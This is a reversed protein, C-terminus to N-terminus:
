CWVEKRMYDAFGPRTNNELWEATKGPITMYTKWSEPDKPYVLQIFSDIKPSMVLTCLILTLYTSVNREIIQAADEKDFFQWYALTESGLVQKLFAMVGKLDFKSQPPEMFSITLWGFAIFRDPYLISLRSM